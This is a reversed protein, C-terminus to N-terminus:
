AEVLRAKLGKSVTKRITAVDETHWARAVRRTIFRAFLADVVAELEDLCQMRLALIDELPLKPRRKKKPPALPDHVGADQDEPESFLDPLKIGWVGGDDARLSFSYVRHGLSMDLSMTDILAGRRVAQLIEGNDDLGAGSLAVRAGGADVTKLVAKKGIAFLVLSKGDEDKPPRVAEPLADGLDLSGGEEVITFYLWTLFETGLFLKDAIRRVKEPAPASKDQDDPRM